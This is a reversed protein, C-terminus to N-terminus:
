YYFVALSFPSPDFDRRLRITGFGESVKTTDHSEDPLLILSECITVVKTPLCTLAWMDLIFTTSPLIRVLQIM